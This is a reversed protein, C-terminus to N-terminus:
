ADSRTPGVDAVEFGRGARLRRLEGEAMAMYVSAGVLGIPLGMSSVLRAVETIQWGVSMTTSYPTYFTWVTVSGQGGAFAPVLFSTASCAAVLLFAVISTWLAFRRMAFLVTRPTLWLALTRASPAPRM